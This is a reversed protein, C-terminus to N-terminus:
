MPLRFAEAVEALTANILGAESTGGTMCSILLPGGLAMGLLVRRMDVDALDLEPLACHLLRVEDFGASVGKAGVDEEVNIRIHDAKRREIPLGVKPGHRRGDARQEM